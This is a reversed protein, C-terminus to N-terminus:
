KVSIKILLAVLMLSNAVTLGAKAEMQVLGFGISPGGVFRALITYVVMLIGILALIDGIKKM